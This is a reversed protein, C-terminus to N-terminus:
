RPRDFSRCNRKRDRKGWKWDRTQSVLGNKDLAGWHHQVTSELRRMHACQEGSAVFWRKPSPIHSIDIPPHVRDKPLKYTCTTTSNAVFWWGSFEGVLQSGQRQDSKSRLTWESEDFISPWSLSLSLSCFGNARVFFFFLICLLHRHLPASSLFFVELFQSSFGRSSRNFNDKYM